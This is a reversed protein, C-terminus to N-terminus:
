INSLLMIYCSHMKLITWCNQMHACLQTYLLTCYFQTLVKFNNSIKCVWIKRHLEYAHPQRSPVCCIRMFGVDQTTVSVTGRLGRSAVQRAPPQCSPVCSIYTFSIDQSAVPVYLQESVAPRLEDHKLNVVPSAVSVLSASAKPRLQYLKKVVPRLEYKGWLRKWLAVWHKM